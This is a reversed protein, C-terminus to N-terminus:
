SMETDEQDEEVELGEVDSEDDENGGEDDEWGDVENSHEVGLEEDLTTLLEVVHERLREDEYEQVTYLRLSNRLWERAEKKVDLATAKETAIEVGMEEKGAILVQCWGGLYWAEVSQDDELVLRELVSLTREEMEVEMLLRALSIRTAFDPIRADELPLAEWIEMSRKLASRADEIRLQSIRVSALTQLASPSDPLQILAETVLTECRSEASDLFSLDTMYVEAMSCLADSLKQKKEINLLLDEPSKLKKDETASIERKLIETGKEFWSITDAGGAESLQALWLFPEASIIHGAPDLGTARSFHLRATDADGLELAIEALLSVTPALSHSRDPNIKHDEHELRKLAAEAIPLALDPQSQQLLTTAETLLEEVSKQPRKSKIASNTTHLLSDQNRKSHRTKRPKIKAM